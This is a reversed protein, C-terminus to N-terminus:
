DNFFAPSLGKIGAEDIRTCEKGHAAHAEIRVHAPKKGLRSVTAQLCIHLLSEFKPGIVLRIGIGDIDVTPFPSLFGHKDSDPIRILPSIFGLHGRMCAAAVAMQVDGDEVIEVADLQRHQRRSEHCPMAVDAVTHMAVRTLIYGYPARM